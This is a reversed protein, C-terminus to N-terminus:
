KGSGSDEDSTYVRGVILLIATVVVLALTVFDLWHWTLPTFRDIGVLIVVPLLIIKLIRRAFLASKPLDKM